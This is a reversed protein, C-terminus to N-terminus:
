DLRLTFNGKYCSVDGHCGHSQRVFCLLPANLRVGRYIGRYADQAATCWQWYSDTEIRSCQSVLWRAQGRLYGEIDYTQCFKLNVDIVADVDDYRRIIDDFRGSNPTFCACNIKMYRDKFGDWGLKEGSEDVFNEFTVLELVHRWLCCSCWFTEIPHWRGTPIAM